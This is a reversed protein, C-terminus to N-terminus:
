QDEEREPSISSNRAKGRLSNYQVSKNLAPKLSVCLQRTSWYKQTMHHPHKEPMKGLPGAVGTRLGITPPFQFDFEVRLAESFSQSASLAPSQSPDFTSTTKNGTARWTGLTVIHILGSIFTPSCFQEFVFFPANVPSIETSM